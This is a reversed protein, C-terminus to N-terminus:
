WLWSRDDGRDRGGGDGRDRGGGDGRDRGSRRDHVRVSFELQSEGRNQRGEDDGCGSGDVVIPGQM